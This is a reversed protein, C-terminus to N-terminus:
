QISSAVNSFVTSANTGILKVTGVVIVLIVALMVAYEAIDQGREDRWLSQRLKSLMNAVPEKKNVSWNEKWRQVFLPVNM